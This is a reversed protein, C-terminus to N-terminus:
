GNEIMEAVRAYGAIDVWSDRHYASGRLRALKVCVMLVAYHEPEVKLGTAAAALNAFDRANEAASGYANLRTGSTIKDAEQLVNLLDAEDYSVYEVTPGDYTPLHPLYPNTDEDTIGLKDAEADTLRRCAECLTDCGHCPTEPLLDPSPSLDVDCVEDAFVNAIHWLSLRRPLDDRTLLMDQFAYVPKGATLATFVELRAGRSKDWDALLVVADAEDIILRVDRSLLKGWSEGEPLDALAGNRSSYCARRIEESDIEAPNLPTYGWKELHDACRNFAPFNFQPKGTMPGAIYMKM